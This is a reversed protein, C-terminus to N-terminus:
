GSLHMLWVAVSGCQWVSMCCEQAMEDNGLPQPRSILLCSVPSPPHPPTPFHTVSHPVSLSSSPPPTLQPLALSLIFRSNMHASHPFISPCIDQRGPKPVYCSTICWVRRAESTQTVFLLRLKHVSNPIGRRGTGGSEPLLRCVSIQRSFGLLNSSRSM